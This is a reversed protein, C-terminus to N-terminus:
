FIYIFPLSSLISPNSFHRSLFPYVLLLIIIFLVYFIVATGSQWALATASTDKDEDNFTGLPESLSPINQKSATGENNKKSDDENTELKSSSSALSSSPLETIDTLIAPEIASEVGLVDNDVSDHIAHTEHIDHLSSDLCSNDRSGQNYDIDDDDELANGISLVSANMISDISDIHAPSLPSNLGLSASFSLASPSFPINDSRISPPPLLFESVLTNQQLRYRESNIASLEHRSFSPSDGESDIPSDWAAVPMAPLSSTTTTTTTTTSITTTNPTTSSTSASTPYAPIHRVIPVNSRLLRQFAIATRGDRWSSIINAAHTPPVQATNVNATNVRLWHDPMNGANDTRQLRREVIPSASASSISSSAARPVIPTPTPTSHTSISPTSTGDQNSRYNSAAMDASSIDSKNSVPSAICAYRQGALVDHPYPDRDIVVGIAFPASSKESLEFSFDHIGEGEGVGKDGRATAWPRISAMNGAPSDKPPTYMLLSPDSLNLSSDASVWKSILTSQNTTNLPSSSQEPSAVGIYADFFINYM